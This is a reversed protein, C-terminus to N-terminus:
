LFLTEGHMSAEAWCAPHILSESIQSDGRSEIETLSVRASLVSAACFLIIFVINQTGAPKKGALIGITEIASPLYGLVAGACLLAIELSWSKGGEVLQDPQDEKVGYIDDDEPM